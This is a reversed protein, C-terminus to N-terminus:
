KVCSISLHRVFSGPLSQGNVFPKLSCEPYVKVHTFRERPRLYPISYVVSVLDKNLVPMMLPGPAMLM